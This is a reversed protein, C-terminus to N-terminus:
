FGGDHVIEKNKQQWLEHSKDFDFGLDRKEREREREESCTSKELGEVVVV